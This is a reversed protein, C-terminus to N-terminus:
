LGTHHRLLDVFADSQGREDYMTMSVQDFGLDVVVGDRFTLTLDGVDLVDPMTRGFTNPRMRTEGIALSAVDSLRRVWSENVTATLPETAAQDKGLDYQEADFQMRIGILRADATILTVAWTSPGTGDFSAVSAEITSNGILAAVQVHVPWPASAHSGNTSAATHGAIQHWYRDRDPETIRM